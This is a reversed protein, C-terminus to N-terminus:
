SPLSTFVARCDTVGVLGRALIVTQQELWADAGQNCTGLMVSQDITDNRHASAKWGARSDSVGPSESGVGKQQM